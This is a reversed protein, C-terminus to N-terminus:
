DLHKGKGKGRKGGEQSRRDITPDNSHSPSRSNRSKQLSYNQRPTHSSPSVERSEKSGSGTSIRTSTKQPGKGDRGGNKPSKSRGYRITTYTHDDNDSDPPTRPKRAKGPAPSPKRPASTPKSTKNRGIQDQLAEIEARMERMEDLFDHRSELPNLAVPPTPTPPPKTSRSIESQLIDRSLGEALRDVLDMHQFVNPCLDKLREKCTNILEGDAFEDQYTKLDVILYKLRDNQIDILLKKISSSHAHDLQLTVEASM